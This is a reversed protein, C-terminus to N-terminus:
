KEINPCSGCIVNREFGKGNTGESDQETELVAAKRPVHDTGDFCPNKGIRKEGRSCYDEPTVRGLLYNKECIGTIYDHIYLYKCDKCNM